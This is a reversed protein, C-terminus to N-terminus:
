ERRPGEHHGYTRAPVADAHTRGPSARVGTRVGRASARVCGARRIGAAPRAATHQRRTMPRVATGSGTRRSRYRGASGTGPSAAVGHALIAGMFAMMEADSSALSSAPGRGGTSRSTRQCSPPGCRGGRRRPRGGARAGDEDVQVGFQGTRGPAPPRWGSGSRPPRRRPSAGPRPGAPGRRPRTRRRAPSPRRARRTAAASSPGGAIHPDQVAAQGGPRPPRQGGLDRLGRRPRSRARRGARQRQEVRVAGRREGAGPQQQVRPRRLAVPALHLRDVRDAAVDRARHRAGVVSFTPRPRGSGARRALQGVAELREARGAVGLDADVAARADGAGVLHQGQRDGPMGAASYAPEQDSHDASPLGGPRWRARARLQRRRAPGVCPSAGIPGDSRVSPRVPGCAASRVVPM